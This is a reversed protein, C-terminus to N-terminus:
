ELEDLLVAKAESLNQIDQTSAEEFKQNEATKASAERSFVINILYEALTALTPYDFLLTAPLSRKPASQLSNRLEISTLSDIGLETFGQQPDGLSSLSLSLV